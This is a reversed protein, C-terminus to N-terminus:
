SGPRRRGPEAAKEPEASAGPAPAVFSDADVEDSVSWITKKREDFYLAQMEELNFPRSGLRGFVAIQHGSEDVARDRELGRSLSLAAHRTLYQAILEPKPQPSFGYFKPQTQPSILQVVAFGNEGNAIYAFLSANTAAVVVDRVDNLQGDAAYSSLHEPQTPRTIDVIALGQEGNAIYAYTRALHLRSAHELAVSADSVRQAFQPQTIDVVHLGRKDTVFLYRFQVASAQPHEFDIQQVVKPQLPRSLDLPDSSPRTPSSHPSPPHTHTMGDATTACAAAAAPM